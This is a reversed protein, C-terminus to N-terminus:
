DEWVGLRRLKEPTLVKNNGTISYFRDGWEGRSVTEELEKLEVHGDLYAFNARGGHVRSVANIPSKMIIGRGNRDLFDEDWINELLPYQFSERGRTPELYIEDDNGPEGGNAVLSFPTIARHSKSRWSGDGDTDGWSRWGEREEMEALLITTAPFTVDGAKVLRNERLGGRERENFKNRPFVAANGAFAIRTVQRDVTTPDVPGSFLDNVQTEDEWDEREGGPNTRPAGGNLLAPSTFADEPVNGNDFLFYSWHLYGFQPNPNSRQQDRLLWRFGEQEAAYVYSPPYFEKFDITYSAVGQAVGRANASAKLAQASRRAQGLAPLLIGILLAIIAIVVLLEILTFAGIARRNGIQM